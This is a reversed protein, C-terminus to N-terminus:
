NSLILTEDSLSVVVSNELKTRDTASLHASQNALHTQLQKEFDGETFPLDVVYANGDGVKFKPYTVDDVTTGDMYIILQGKSPVYTTQANWSATTDVRISDLGQQKIYEKILLDYEGLRTLDIIKHEAM